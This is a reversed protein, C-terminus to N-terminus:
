IRRPDGTDWVILVVLHFCKGEETRKIYESYLLTRTGRNRSVEGGNAGIRTEKNNSNYDKRRNSGMTSGAQGNWGKGSEVRRSTGTGAVCRVNACASQGFSLKLEENVVEKMCVVIKMVRMFEKPDRPRIRNRVKIQLGALLYGLLQEKTM